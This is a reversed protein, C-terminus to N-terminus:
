RLFDYDFETVKGKNPNRPDKSLTKELQKIISDFSRRLPIQNNVDSITKMVNPMVAQKMKLPDNAIGGADAFARMLTPDNKFLAGANLLQFLEEPAYDSNMDLALNNISKPMPGELYKAADNKGMTGGLLEIMAANKSSGDLTNKLPVGGSQKKFLANLQPMLEKDSLDANGLVTRLNGNSNMRKLYEVLQGTKGVDALRGMDSFMTKNKKFIDEAVKDGYTGLDPLGLTQGNVASSFKDLEAPMANGSVRGTFERAMDEPDMDRVWINRANSPTDLSSYDRYYSKASSQNALGGGAPDVKGIEPIRFGKSPSDKRAMTMATGEQLAQPLRSMRNAFAEGAKEGMYHKGLSKFLGRLPVGVLSVLAKAEGGGPLDLLGPARGASLKDVLDAGPVMSAALPLRGEDGFIANKAFRGAGRAFDGAKDYAKTLKQRNSARAESTKRTPVPM